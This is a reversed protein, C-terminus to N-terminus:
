NRANNPIGFRLFLIAVDLLVLSYLEAADSFVVFLHHKMWSPKNIGVM